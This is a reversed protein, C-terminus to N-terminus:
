RYWGLASCSPWCPPPWEYSGAEVVTTLWGIDNGDADAGRAPVRSDAILIALVILAIPTPIKKTMILAVLAFFVVLIAISQIM